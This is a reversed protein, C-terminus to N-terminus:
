SAGKPEHRGDRAEADSGGMKELAKDLMDHFMRFGRKDKPRLSFPDPLSRYREIARVLGIPPTRDIVVSIGYNDAQGNWTKTVTGISACGSRVEDFVVQPFFADYNDYGFMLLTEGHYPAIGVQGFVEHETGVSVGHHQCISGPPFDIAGLTDLFSVIQQPWAATTM